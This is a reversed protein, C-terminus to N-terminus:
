EKFPFTEASENFVKFKVGTNRGTNQQLFTLMMQGTFNEPALKEIDVISNKINILVTSDAIDEGGVSFRRETQIM